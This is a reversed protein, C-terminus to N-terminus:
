LRSTSTSPCSPAIMINLAVYICSHACMHAQSHFLLPLIMTNIHQLTQFLANVYCPQRSRFNAYCLFCPYPRAVVPVVFLGFLAFDLQFSTFLPDFLVPVRVKREVFPPFSVFDLVFRSKDLTQTFRAPVEVFRGIQVLFLVFAVSLSCTRLLVQSTAPPLSAYLGRNQEGDDEVVLSCGDSTPDVILEGESFPVSGGKRRKKAKSSSAVM